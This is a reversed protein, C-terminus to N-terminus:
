KLGVEIHGDPYREIREIGFDREGITKCVSAPVREVGDVLRVVAIREWSGDVAQQDTRVDAVTPHAHIESLARNLDATTRTAIM